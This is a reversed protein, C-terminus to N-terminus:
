GAMGPFLQFRKSIRSVVGLCHPLLSANQRRTLLILELACTQDMKFYSFSHVADLEVLLKVVFPNDKNGHNWTSPLKLPRWQKDTGVTLIKCHERHYGTESISAVKFDIPNRVHFLQMELSHNNPDPLHLNQCTSTLVYNRKDMPPHYIISFDVPKSRIMHKNIFRPDQILSYWQKSVRKCQLLSKIPLWSLIEYMIEYPLYP